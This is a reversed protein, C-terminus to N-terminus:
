HNALISYNKNEFYILIKNLKQYKDGINYYRILIIASLYGIVNTFCTILVLSLLLIGSSYHIISAADNSINLDFYSLLFPFIFSHNNKMNLKSKIIKLM